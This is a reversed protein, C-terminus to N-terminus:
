WADCFTSGTGVLAPDPGAVANVDSLPMSGEACRICNIGTIGTQDALGDLPNYQLLAVPVPYRTPLPSSLRM